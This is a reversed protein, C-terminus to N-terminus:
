LLPFIFIIRRRRRSLIPSPLKQLPNLILQYYQRNSKSNLIEDPFLQKRYVKRIQIVKTYYSISYAEPGFIKTQYFAIWQPPWRNKLWKNASSIPIRYWHRDCVISFDRKDNLLAILVEGQDSM